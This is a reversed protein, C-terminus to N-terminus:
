DYLSRWGQIFFINREFTASEDDGANSLLLGIPIEENINITNSTSSVEWIFPNHGVQFLLEETKEQGELDSFTFIAKTQGVTTGIFDLSFTLLSLNEWVGESILQEDSMFYGEGETIEYQFRYAQTSVVREPVISFSANEALNVTITEQYNSTVEFDFSSIVEVDKDCTTLLLLCLLGILPTIRTKM